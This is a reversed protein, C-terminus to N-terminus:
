EMDGTTEGAPLRQKVLRLVNWGSRRSYTVSDLLTRVFHMGLGGVQREELSADLDPPPVSLPDFPKGDDRIEVAVEGAEVAVEVIIEHRASDSFGYNVSNSLIEDLAIDLADVIEEAVERRELFRRADAMLQPIASQENAVTFTAASQSKPMTKFLVACGAGFGSSALAADVVEAVSQDHHWTGLPEVEGAHLWLLAGPQWANGPLQLAARGQIATAVTGEVFDLRAIAIDTGKLRVIESITKLAAKPDSVRKLVVRILEKLSAARLGDEIATGALSVATVALVGADLWLYDFFATHTSAVAGGAIEIDRRVPFQRPLLSHRLATALEDFLGNKDHMRNPEGAEQFLIQCTPGSESIM